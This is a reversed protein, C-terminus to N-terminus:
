HGTTVFLNCISLCVQMQFSCTQKLIHWMKTVVLCSLTLFIKQKELTTIYKSFTLMMNICIITSSWVTAIPVRTLVSCLFHPKGNFIEENFTRIQDCKSLFEKIFFKMKRSTVDLIARKAFITLPKLYMESREVYM